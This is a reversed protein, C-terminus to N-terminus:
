LNFMKKLFMNKSMEDLLEKRANKPMKYKTEAEIASNLMEKTYKIDGDTIIRFSQNNEFILFLHNKNDVKKIETKM